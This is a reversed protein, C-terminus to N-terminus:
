QYGMTFTAIGNASGPTIAADTQVYSATLPINFTGNISQGAMWQNQNGITSSAPGYSVINTGNRIQIGIGKATSTTTLSLVNSTNTTKTQDTLTTYITAAVGQAGGSCNLGITFSKEPSTSGIGSFASRPVNGLPVQISPTTVACTPVTPNVVMPVNLYIYFIPYSGNQVMYQIINGSISGGATITGTKIVDIAFGITLNFSNNGSWSNSYVPFYSQTTYDTFRLGIGPINTSYTKYTSNYTGVGSEVITGYTLPSCNVSSNASAFLPGSSWLVTGNAVNNPNFVPVKPQFNVTFSGPTGSCAAWATAPLFVALILGLLVILKKM